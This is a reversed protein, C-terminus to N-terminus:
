PARPQGRATSPSVTVGTVAVTAATTVTFTPSVAVGVGNSGTINLTPNYTGAALGAVPRITFTATGGAALNTSTLATLTYNAVAPLANLTIAGTSTNTITVTQAAPQTYPSQLTGFAPGSPSASISYETGGGKVVTVAVIDSRVTAAGGTASVNCYYYYASPSAALDTPIPFSAAKAGSMEIPSAGAFNRCSYWQYSLTAGQTVTAAVTLSETIAGQTVSVSQPQTTITIVPAAGATLNITFDQTYNTGPAAGDTITARAVITGPGSANVAGAYVTAGPATSGSGLSWAITQNTANAPVVTGGLTLSTGVTGTTPVGTIDTVPVFPPGPSEIRAYKHTGTITTTSGNGLSGAGGPDASTTNTWYRFGAPVIYNNSTVGVHFLSRTYGTATIKGNDFIQLGNFSMGRGGSTERGRATVNANDRVYITNGVVNIGYNSATPSSGSSLGGIATVTVNGSFTLPGNTYIGYNANGEYGIASLSGNGTITLPGNAAAVYIGCSTGGGNFSSEIRNTGNLAITTGGPVELAYAATTLFSFNTLTLTWAGVSGTVSAGTLTVAAGSANTNRLSGDANNLYLRYNQAFLVAPMAALAVTLAFMMTVSRLTKLNYNKTDM